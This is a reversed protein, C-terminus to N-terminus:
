LSFLISFKFILFIGIFRSSFLFGQPWHSPPLLVFLTDSIKFTDTLYRGHTIEQTGTRHCPPFATRSFPGAGFAGSGRGLPWCDEPEASARCGGCWVSTCSTLISEITRKHAISSQRSWLHHPTLLGLWPTQSTCGWLSSALVWHHLPCSFGLPVLKNWWGSFSSPIIALSFDLFLMWAHSTNDELHALSLHLAFPIKDETSPNPQYSFQSPDFTPPISTTHHEVLREFYNSM